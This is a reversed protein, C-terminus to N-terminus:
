KTIPKQDDHLHADNGETATSGEDEGAQDPAPAAKAEDGEKTEEGPGSMVVEAQQPRHTSRATM